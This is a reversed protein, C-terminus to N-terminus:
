RSCLRGAALAVLATPGPTHESLVADLGVPQFPDRQVAASV